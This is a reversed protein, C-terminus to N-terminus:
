KKRHEVPHVIKKGARRVRQRGLRLERRDAHGKDYAAPLDTFAAKDYFNRPV